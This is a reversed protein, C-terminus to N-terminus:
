KEELWGRLLARNALLGRSSLRQVTGHAAFLSHELHQRDVKTGTNMQRHKMGQGGRNMAIKKRRTTTVV